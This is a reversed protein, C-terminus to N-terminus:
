LLNPRFRPSHILVNAAREFAETKRQRVKTTPAPVKTGCKCKRLGVLLKRHAVLITRPDSDSMDTEPVLEANAPERSASQHKSTSARSDSVQSSRINLM